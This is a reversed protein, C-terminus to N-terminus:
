ARAGFADSGAPTHSGVRIHRSCAGSTCTGFDHTCALRRRPRTLRTPLCTQACVSACLLVKEAM